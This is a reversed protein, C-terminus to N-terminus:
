ATAPDIVGGSGVWELVLSREIGTDKVMIVKKEM